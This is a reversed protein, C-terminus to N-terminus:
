IAVPVSGGVYAAVEKAEEPAPHRNTLQTLVLSLEVVHTDEKGTM